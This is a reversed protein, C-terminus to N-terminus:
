DGDPHDSFRDTTGDPRYAFWGLQADPNRAIAEAYQRRMRETELRFEISPVPPLQERVSCVLDGRHFVVFGEDRHRPGLLDHFFDDSEHARVEAWQERTVVVTFVDGGRPVVELRGDGIERVSGHHGLNRLLDAWARDVYEDESM